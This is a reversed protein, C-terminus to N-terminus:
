PQGPMASQGYTCTSSEQLWLGQCRVPAGLMALRAWRIRLWDAFSHPLYAFERATLIAHVECVWDIVCRRSAGVPADYGRGRLNPFLNLKRLNLLRLLSRVAAPERGERGLRGGHGKERPTTM